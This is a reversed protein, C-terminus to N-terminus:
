IKTFKFSPRKMFIHSQAHAITKAQTAKRTQIGGERRTQRSHQCQKSGGHMGGVM